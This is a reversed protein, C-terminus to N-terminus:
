GDDNVEEDQATEVLADDEGGSEALIHDMRQVVAITEGHAKMADAWLAKELRDDAIVNEDLLRAQLAFLLEDLELEDVDM